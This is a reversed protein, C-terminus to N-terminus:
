SSDWNAGPEFSERSLPNQNANNDEVWTIEDEEQNPPYAAFGQEVKFAVVHIAPTTYNHKAPKNM